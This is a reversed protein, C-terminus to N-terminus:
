GHDERMIASANMTIYLCPGLPSNLQPQIRFCRILRLCYQRVVRGLRVANVRREQSYQRYDAKDRHDNAGVEETRNFAGNQGEHKHGAQPSQGPGARKFDALVANAVNSDPPLIFQLPLLDCRYLGVLVTNYQAALVILNQRQRTRAVPETPVASLKLFKEPLVDFCSIGRYCFTSRHHENNGLSSARDFRNCGQNLFVSILISTRGVLTEFDNAALLALSHASNGRSFSM